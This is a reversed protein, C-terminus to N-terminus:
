RFSDHLGVWDQLCVLADWSTLMCINLCLRLPFSFLPPPAM